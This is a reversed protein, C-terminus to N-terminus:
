RLHAGVPERLGPVNHFLDDASAVSHDALAAIASENIGWKPPFFPAHIASHPTFRQKIRTRQGIGATEPHAVRAYKDTECFLNQCDILTLRRGFLDEFDLGYHAFEEEQHDVAWRIIDGHSAGATDVFCKAIGSRAGPGAVVFQNEDFNIITSYNLDITLQFALFPGLSPYSSITDFVDRLSGASVIAQTAGSALIHEALLLHNLHKRRAGFPPPPIIYAPSYIRQGRAMLRELHRNIRAVDFTELSVTGVADEIAQWTSPKNFFRYLLTRLLLEDPAQPGAYQVHILDQSVRDAARYANTFRYNSLIADTTWPAPAARLRQHYVRQREAAVFWYSRLVDTAVVTRGGIRITRM